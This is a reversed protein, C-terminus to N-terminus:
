IAVKSLNPRLQCWKKQRFPIKVLYWQCFSFRGSFRATPLHHILHILFIDTDLFFVACLARCATPVHASPPVEARITSSRNNIAVRVPDHSGSRFAANMDKTAKDAVVFAHGHSLCGFPVEIQVRKTKSQFAHFFLPLRLIRRLPTKM